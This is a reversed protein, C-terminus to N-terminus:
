DYDPTPEMNGLMSSNQGWPSANNNRLDPYIRSGQVFSQQQQQWAPKPDYAAASPMYISPVSPANNTYAQNEFAYYPPQQAAPGLGNKSARYPVPVDEFANRATNPQQQQQMNYMSPSASINGGEGGKVVSVRHAVRKGNQRVERIIQFQSFVVLVFYFWLVANFILSGGLSTLGSEITRPDATITVPPKLTSGFGPPLSVPLTMPSDIIDNIENTITEAWENRQIITLIGAALTACSRLGELLIWPVMIKRSSTRAGHIMLCTFIFDVIIYGLVVYLIRQLVTISDLIYDQIEDIQDEIFIMDSSSIEFYDQLVDKIVDKDVLLDIAALMMGTLIGGVILAILQLTGIVLAGARASCCICCCHMLAM